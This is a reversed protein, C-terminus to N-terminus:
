VVPARGCLAYDSASKLTNNLNDYQDVIEKFDFTLWTAYYTFINSIYCLTRKDNVIEPLWKFDDTLMNVLRTEYKAEALHDVLALANNTTELNHGIATMMNPTRGREFHYEKHELQLHDMYMLLDDGAFGLTIIKEKVKLFLQDYDFIIVRTNKHGYHKYLYEAILGATPAIIVDYKGKLDKTYANLPENNECYYRKRKRNLHRIMIESATNSELVDNLVGKKIYDYVIREHKEYDRHPYMYWKEGRQEKTFNNIRPFNDSDIWLPTYDDHINEKSITYNNGLKTIDKGNWKSLNIEFHQTHLTAPQGPHAIIHARMFEDSESFEYFNQVPIKVTTQNGFGCILVGITCVMAHTHGKAKTEKLATDIDKYFYVCHGSGAGTVGGQLNWFLYTAMKEKFWTWPIKNNDLIIFALHKQNEKTYKKYLLADFLDDATQYNSQVM